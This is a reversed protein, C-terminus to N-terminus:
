NKVLSVGMKRGSSDVLQGDLIALTEYGFQGLSCMVIEVATNLNMPKICMYGTFNGLNDRDLKNIHISIGKLGDGEWHEGPCLLLQEKM